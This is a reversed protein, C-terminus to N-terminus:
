DSDTTDSGYGSDLLPPFPTCEPCALMGLQNQHDDNVYCPSANVVEPVSEKVEAIARKLNPWQSFWIRIGKATKFLEDASYNKEFAYIDVTPPNATIDAYVKGGIHVRDQKVIGNKALQIAQDINAVQWKLSAFRGISLSVGQRTPFQGRWDRLDFRLEDNWKKVRFLKKNYKGEYIIRSYLLDGM